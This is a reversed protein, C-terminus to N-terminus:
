QAAPVAAQDGEPRVADGWKGSSGYDVTGQYPSAERPAYADRPAYKDRGDYQSLGRNPDNAKDLEEIQKQLIWSAANWLIKDVQAHAVSCSFVALGLCISTTLLRKSM